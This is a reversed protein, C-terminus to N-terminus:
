SQLDKENQNDLYKDWCPNEEEDHYYDYNEKCYSYAQYKRIIKRCLKCRLKKAM